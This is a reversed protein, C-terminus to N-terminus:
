WYDFVIVSMRFGHHTTTDWCVVGDEDSLCAVPSFNAVQGYPLVPITVASNDRNSAWPAVDTHRISTVIGDRIAPEPTGCDNSACQAVVPSPLTWDKRIIECIMGAGYPDKTCGVNGSPMSFQAYRKYGGVTMTQIATSPMSTCVIPNIGSPVVVGNSCIVTQVDLVAQSAKQLAEQQAAIAASFGAPDGTSFGDVVGHAQQIAASLASRTTEDSVLGQSQDLVSQATAIAQNVADTAYQIRSSTVSQIAQELSTIANTCAGSLGKIQATQTAVQNPDASMAPPDAVLGKAANIASSLNNDLSVDAAQADIAQVKEADDIRQTLTTQVQQYESVASAFDRKTQTDGLQQPRLVLMYLVLATCVLVALIAVIIIVTPKKKSGPVTAAQMPTTYPKDTSMAAIPLTPSQAAVVAKVKEDGFQSLYNLLGPYVQPHQAVLVWLDPQATTIALLDEPSTAPNLLAALAVDEQEFDAM